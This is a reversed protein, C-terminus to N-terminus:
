FPLDEEEEPKTPEPENKYEYYSPDFDPAEPDPTGDDLSKYYMQLIYDRAAKPSNFDKIAECVEDYDQMDGENVGIKEAFTDIYDAGVKGLIQKYYLREGPAEGGFLADKMGTALRSGGKKKSDWRFKQGNCIALVTKAYTTKIDGFWDKAEHIDIDPDYHNYTLIVDGRKNKIFHSTHPYNIRGIAASTLKKYANRIRKYYKQAVDPKGARLAKISYPEGWEWICYEVEQKQADTLGDWDEWLPVNHKQLLEMEGYINRRLVGVGTAQRSRKVLLLAAGLALLIVNNKKM